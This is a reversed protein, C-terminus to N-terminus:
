LSPDTAATAKKGKLSDPSLLMWTASIGGSTDKAVQVTGAALRTKKGAVVDFESTAGARFPTKFVLRITDDRKAGTPGFSVRSIGTVSDGTYVMRVGLKVSSMTLDGDSQQVALSVGMPGNLADAKAQWASTGPSFSLIHIGTSIAGHYPVFYPPQAFQSWVQATSTVGGIRIASGQGALAGQERYLLVPIPADVPTMGSGQDNMDTGQVFQWAVPVNNDAVFRLLYQADEAPDAPGDLQMPVQHVTMGAHEDIAVEEASNTYHVPTGQGRPMLQVDYLPTKGRNDVDLVIMAYPLEPGIWQVIQLPWYRYHIGPLPLLASVASAAPMGSAAPQQAWLASCFASLSLSVALSRLGLIRFGPIRFGPHMALGVLPFLRTDTYASLAIPTGEFDSV